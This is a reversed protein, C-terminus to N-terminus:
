SKKLLNQGLTIIEPVKEGAFNFLKGNLKKLQLNCDQSEVILKRM